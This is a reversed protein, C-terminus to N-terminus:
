SQLDQSKNSSLVENKFNDYYSDILAKFRELFTEKEYPSMKEIDKSITCEMFVVVGKKGINQARFLYVDDFSYIYSRNDKEMSGEQKRM